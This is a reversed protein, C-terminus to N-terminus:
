KTNSYLWSFHQSLKLHITFSTLWVYVHIWKGGGGCVMWAAVYCQAYDWTSYVTPRQKNNMKFIVIYVHGDWAGKGEAVM